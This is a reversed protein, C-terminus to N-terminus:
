PTVGAASSALTTIAQQDGCRADSGDDPASILGLVTLPKAPDAGKAAFVPSGSYGRVTQCLTRVCGAKVGIAVCLGPKAWRLGRRWRPIPTTQATGPAVLTRTDDFDLFHGLVFAEGPIASTGFIIKPVAIPAASELRLVIFDRGIDTQPLAGPWKDPALIKWASNDNRISRAWVRGSAVANAMLRTNFCHLATAIRNGSLLVGGCHHTAVSNSETPRIEIVAVANLAGQVGNQAGGHTLISPAADATMTGDARQWPLMSALCSADFKAIADRHTASNCGASCSLSQRRYERAAASCSNGADSGAVLRSLRTLESVPGGSLCEKDDPKCSRRYQSILSDFVGPAVDPEYVRQYWSSRMEFIRRMLGPNKLVEMLENAPLDNIPRTAFRNLQAQLAPDRLIIKNNQLEFEEAHIKEQDKLASLIEARQSVSLKSLDLGAPQSPLKTQALGSSIASFLGCVALFINTIAALRPIKM